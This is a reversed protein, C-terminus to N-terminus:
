TIRPPNELEPASGPSPQDGPIKPITTRRSKPIHRHRPSAPIGGGRQFKAAPIGAPNWRRAPNGLLFIPNKKKKQSCGDWFELFIGPFDKWIGFNGGSGSFPSNEAELFVGSKVSNWEWIRFETPIGVGKARGSEPEPIQPPPQPYKQHFIPFIGESQGPYDMPRGSNPIFIKIGDRPLDRRGM